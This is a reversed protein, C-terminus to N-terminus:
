KYFSLFFIHMLVNTSKRLTIYKGHIVPFNKGSGPKSSIQGGKKRRTRKFNRPKVKLDNICKSDIRSCLTFHLALM